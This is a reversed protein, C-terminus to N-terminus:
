PGDQDRLSSHTWDWYRIIADVDDDWEENYYHSHPGPSTVPGASLGKAKIAEEFSELPGYAYIVNHRDYVLNGRSEPSSVWLNHRGDNELADRFRTLFGVADQRDLPYPSQYRGAEQSNSRPVILVYLVGLPDPLFEMLSLLLDVHGTTPGIVLREPGTTQEKEYTNPYVYADDGTIFGFKPRM